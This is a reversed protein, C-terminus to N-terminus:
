LIPFSNSLSADTIFNEKNGSPAHHTQLQNHLKILNELQMELTFKSIFIEHARKALNNAEEPHSKIWRMHADIQQFLGESTKEQDIYLVADGFHKEIFPHRDSIIVTSAACAEFIRGTPTGGLFHDPAHLILTVGCNHMTRLLSSGDCKIFGRYCNPTHRWENKQGYVNFYHTKDLRSFLQKYKAGFNTNAM